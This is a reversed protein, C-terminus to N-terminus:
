VCLVMRRPAVSYCCTPPAARPKISHPSSRCFVQARLLVFLSSDESLGARAGIRVHWALALLIEHTALTCPVVDVGAEMMSRIPGGRVAMGQPCQFANTVVSTEGGGVLPHERTLAVATGIIITRKNNKCFCFRAFAMYRNPSPVRRKEFDAFDAHRLLGIQQHVDVQAVIENTSTLLAADLGAGCGRGGPGCGRSRRQLCSGWYRSVYRRLRCTAKKGANMDVEPRMWPSSKRRIKKTSLMLTHTHSLSLTRVYRCVHLSRRQRMNRENNINGKNDTIYIYVYM